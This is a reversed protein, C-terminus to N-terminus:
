CLLRFDLDKIAIVCPDLIGEFSVGSAQVFVQVISDTASQELLVDEVRATEDQMRSLRLTEALNVDGLPVYWVLVADLASVRWYPDELLDLYVVSGDARTRTWTM